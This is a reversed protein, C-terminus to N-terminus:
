IPDKCDCGSKEARATSRSFLFRRPWRTEKVECPVPNATSLMDQLRAGLIADPRQEWRKWPAEHKALSTETGRECALASLGHRARVWGRWPHQAGEKRASHPFFHQIQSVGHQWSVTESGELGEYLPPVMLTEVMCPPAGGLAGMWRRIDGGGAGKWTTEVTAPDQLHGCKGM